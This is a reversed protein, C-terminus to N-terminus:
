FVAIGWQTCKTSSTILYLSGNSIDRGRSLAYKYWQVGYCAALNKLPLMTMAEDQIAGGPLELIAGESGECIYEGLSTKKIPSDFFSTNHPLPELDTTDSCESTELSFGDPLKPPNISSNQSPCINFLFDFTGTGRVFGVDGINVGKRAYEKSLESFPKPNYLPYGRLSKLMSRAY